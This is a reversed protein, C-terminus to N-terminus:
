SAPTYDSVKVIQSAFNSWNSATTWTSYLADPVVIKFTNNTSNFANVNSLTPVATAESFDVIELATCGRFANDLGSSGVSSLKSLYVDTLSTCGRFAM